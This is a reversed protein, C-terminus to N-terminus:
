PSHQEQSAPLLAYQSSNILDQGDLRVNIFDNVAAEWNTVSLLQIYPNSSDSGGDVLNGFSILTYTNRVTNHTYMSISFM